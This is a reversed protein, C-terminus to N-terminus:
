ERYIGDWGVPGSPHRATAAIIKRARQPRPRREGRRWGAVTRVKVGFLDAAPEDGVEYIFQPLTKM